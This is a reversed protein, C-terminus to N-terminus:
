DIFVFVTPQVQITAVAAYRTAVIVKADARVAVVMLRDEPKYHHVRYLLM